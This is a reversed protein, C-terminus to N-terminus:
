RFEFRYKLDAGASGLENRSGIVSVNRDIRYELKILDEEVTGIATSYIVFLKDEILRKGMTIKPAFAGERTTHAEIEFRDIGTYYTFEEEVTDQLGGTLISAAQGAAIGSEIGGEETGRHGVTLLALTDTESLPPDSYFSLGFNDMTGDLTLRVYYEDVYTDAFIHFMPTISDPEVFDVSSGELINFENSRFYVTGEDAEIRGLLGKQGVTGTVNLSIKVPTRAINNDIIINDEGTVRINVNTEALFEPYDVAEDQMEKLGLIWSKWEVRDTYRAKRIDINGTLSSDEPLVEYFLIGDLVTSLGAAPKLKIDRIDASVFLRKFEMGDLYAAGSMDIAGGAFKLTVADFTMRDKKLFLTGKVPGIKYPVDSFAAHAKSVSIEGNIEPAKWKGAIDLEFSGEGKISDISEHLARLPAIDLGGKIRLDYNDYLKVRGEAHVDANRGTMSFSKIQLENDKLEFDLTGRNVLDYGYFSLAASSLKSNVAIEDGQGKLHVDGELSVVLDEPLEKLLGKLVYDYRGKHLKSRVNWVISDSFFASADTTIMGDMLSGEAHLKKDKFTGKVNGKGAQAGKIVSEDISATFELEPNDITGSGKVNLGFMMDFPYESFASFDRLQLKDSSATFDIAKSFFLTGAANLSSEEKYARLSNFSIKEPDLTYEATLKDLAQGYIDSGIVSLDGTSVYHESDGDFSVSGSVQGSVPIAKYFAEALPSIHVNKLEAVAKYYPGQFSFLEEADRFDITGSVDYLADEQTILMRDVSLAKVRYSVDAFAETFKLGEISGSQVNIRGTIQPDDAHGTLTGEFEGPSILKTYYPETLDATDTSHLRVNLDLTDRELDITGDLFLDSKETSMLSEKLWLIEDRLELVTSASRLRDTVDGEGVTTNRYNIDAAVTIVDTSSEYSLLVEGGVTGAPFPPEWEIYEFFQPSGAGDFVADVMYDGGTILIHADGEFEGKLSRAKFGQSAFKENKYSMVGELEDVPFTDFVANELKATGTGVIDPFMGQIKGTVSLNGSINEDIELIEMLTELYFQSDTKLDVDFGPWKSDKREVLKVKGEFSLRGEKKKKLDFIKNIISTDIDAKVSLIGSEVHEEDSLVVDGNATFLSGASSVNLDAIHIRNDEVKVRVKLNGEIEQQNPMRVSGEKVVATIVSSNKRSVMDAYLGSVAIGSVGDANLYELSGDTMKINKLSVKYTGAEEATESQKLNNVIRQLDHEGMTATPELLTLKRVRIEKSLLGLVDIYVRTKTIWLLRNGDTDFMKLGKGQVYFPFLNIVAKDILIRERTANELVPILIRKISNSLYPGRLLFFLIGVCLVTLGLAKLLKSKRSKMKNM